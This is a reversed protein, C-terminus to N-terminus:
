VLTETGTGPGKELTETPKLVRVVEAAAKRETQLEYLSSVDFNSCDENVNCKIVDYSQVVLLEAKVRQTTKMADGGDVQLDALASQLRSNEATSKEELEGNLRNELGDISAELGRCIKGLKEQAAKRSKDHEELRESLAREVKERNDLNSAKM